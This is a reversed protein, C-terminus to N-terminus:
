EESDLMIKAINRSSNIMEKLLHKKDDKLSDCEKLLSIRKEIMEDALQKNNTFYAKSCDLYYEQIKKFLAETEKNSDKSYNKAADSVSELNKALWWTLHSKINSISSAPNSLNSRTLRSILFFLKDVEFDRLQLSDYEEKGKKADEIISRSLMDMRRVTNQLSFESLNLFDKAVLKTATHDIIELALFNDLIKRVDKLKQNLSNGHFTFVAYNNIYASITQRRITSIEKNDVEISIEKTNQKQQNNQASIKLENNKEEIYITDGKKLKNKSIWDIPLSVTHSAAGSKVLKRVDM